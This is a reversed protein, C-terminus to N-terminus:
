APVKAGTEFIIANTPQLVSLELVRYLSKPNATKCRAAYHTAIQRSNFAAISEWGRCYDTNANAQVVWELGQFEVRTFQHAM